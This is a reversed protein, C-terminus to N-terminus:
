VLNSWVFGTEPERHLLFVHVASQLSNEFDSWWRFKSAGQAWNSTMIVVLSAHYNSCSILRKHCGAPNGFLPFDIYTKNQTKIIISYDVHIIYEEFDFM